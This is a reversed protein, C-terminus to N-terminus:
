KPCNNGCNDSANVYYVKLPTDIHMTGVHSGHLDLLLSYNM